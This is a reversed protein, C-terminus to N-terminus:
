GKLAASCSLQEPGHAADIARRGGGHATGAPLPSSKCGDWTNVRYGACAAAAEASRIASMRVAFTAMLSM